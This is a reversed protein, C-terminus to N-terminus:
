NGQGLQGILAPDLTNLETAWDLATAGFADTAQLDAGAGLLAEVMPGSGIAVASHLPPVSAGRPNVAVGEDVLLALMGLDRSVIGFHLMPLRHVGCGSAPLEALRAAVALRDGIACASFLDTPVGIEFLRRILHHHGLHSAAELATEGWSSRSAGLEHNRGLMTIAAAPEEHAANVFEDVDLDPAPPRSRGVTRGTSVVRVAAIRPRSRFSCKSSRQVSMKGLGTSLM